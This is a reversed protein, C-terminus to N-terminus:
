GWRCGDGRDEKRRGQGVVHAPQVVQEGSRERGDLGPPLAPESRESERTERKERECGAEM